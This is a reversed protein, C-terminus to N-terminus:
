FEKFVGFSVGYNDYSNQLKLFNLGVNIGWDKGLWQKRKVDLYLANHNIEQPTTLYSSMYSEKGYSIDFYTWSTGEKGIGLSVLDTASYVSGPNNKNFFHQYTINWGNGYYIVGVNLIDSSYNNYYKIYTGGTVLVIQKKPGVKFYFNQDIRYNPLYVSNSGASLGTYTYLRDSWNKYAGAEFLIASGEIRSFGDLGLFFTLNPIQKNYYKVSGIKWNGYLNNPLLYNYSGTIDISQNDIKAYSLSYFVLIFSFILGLIKKTKNLNTVKFLM